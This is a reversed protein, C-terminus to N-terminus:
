FGFQSPKKKKSIKENQIQKSKNHLISQFAWKSSLTKRCMLTPTFWSQQWKAWRNFLHGRWWWWWWWTISGSACCHICSSGRHQTDSWAHCPDPQVQNPNKRAPQSTRASRSATSHQQAHLNKPLIPLLSSNRPAKPPYSGAPKDRLRLHARLFSM